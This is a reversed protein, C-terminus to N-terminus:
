MGQCRSGNEAMGIWEKGNRDMQMGEDTSIRESCHKELHSESENNVNSGLEFSARSSFSINEPQRVNCNMQTGAETSTM